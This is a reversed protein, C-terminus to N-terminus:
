TPSRRWRLDPPLTSRRQIEAHIAERLEPGPSAKLLGELFELDCSSLDYGTSRGKALRSQEKRKEM